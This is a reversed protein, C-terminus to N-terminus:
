RREGGDVKVHAEGSASATAPSDSTDVTRAALDDARVSGGDVSFTVDAEGSRRLADGIRHADDSLSSHADAMGQRGDGQSRQELEAVAKALDAQAVLAIAMTRELGKRVGERLRDDSATVVITTTVSAQEDGVTAVDNGQQASASSQQRQLRDAVRSVLAAEWRGTQSLASAAATRLSGHSTRV